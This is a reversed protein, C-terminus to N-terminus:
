RLRRRVVAHILRDVERELEGASTGADDAPRGIAPELLCSRWRFGWRFFACSAGRLNVMTSAIQQNIRLPMEVASTAVCMAACPPWFIHIMSMTHGTVARHAPGM